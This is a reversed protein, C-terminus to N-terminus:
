VEQNDSFVPAERQSGPRMAAHREGQDSRRDTLSLAGRYFLYFSLLQIVHYLDNNNFHEHLTFGSAQVTAGIGTVVIAALFYGENGMPRRWSSLSILGLVLLMAIGYDVIVFIFDPESTVWILYALLRAALLLAIPVHWSPALTAKVMGLVFCFSMVGTAYLTALWLGDELLGPLLPRFGHVTGGTFGAIAICLFAWALLQRSVEATSNGKSLVRFFYLCQLMILYDTVLTMPESIVNGTNPM